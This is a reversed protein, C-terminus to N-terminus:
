SMELCHLLGRTTELASARNHIDHKTEFMCATLTAVLDCFTTYLGRNKSTRIGWIKSGPIGAVQNQHNRKCESHPEVKNPKAQMLAM